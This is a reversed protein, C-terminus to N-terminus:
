AQDTKQTELISQSWAKNEESLDPPPPAQQYDISLHYLSREYITDLARKLDLQVDPDPARLPVPLVPLPDHLNFAWAETKRTGARM